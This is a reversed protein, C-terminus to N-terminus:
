EIVEDARLLIEQPLRLGLALATKRNVVLEIRTAQEVPLDAPSAGQLIRAAYSGARRFQDRLDVGYSMLGGAVVHERAQAFLPLKQALALEAIRVRQSILFPDHNVLLAQVHARAANALAPDIEAPVSAALDIMEVGARRAADAVPNAGEGAPNRPNRLLALRRAGPLTTMALELLKPRTDQAINTMGTVNGGPRALSTVLGALVPDGATTMVIPISATANKAARVGPTSATIILDVRARVLDESLSPLLEFRGEANRTEYIFNGGEVFGAARLAETFAAWLHPDTSNILVRGIRWIRKAQAYTGPALLAAGLALLVPVVQRRNM